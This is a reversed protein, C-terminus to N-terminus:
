IKLDQVADIVAGSELIMRIVQTVAASIRKGIVDRPIATETETITLEEATEKVIEITVIETMTIGIMAIEIMIIGIMAIEIMAIKLMAIGIMAIEIMATEIMIKGIGSIMTDKMSTDTATVTTKVVTRVTVATIATMEIRIKAVMDEVVLGVNAKTETEEKLIQMLSAVPM